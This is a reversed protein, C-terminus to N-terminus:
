NSISKTFFHRTKGEKPIPEKLPRAKLNYIIKGCPGEEELLDFYELIGKFRLASVFDKNLSPFLTHFSLDPMDLPWLEKAKLPLTSLFANAIVSAVFRRDLKMSAPKSALMYEFSEPRLQPLAAAYKVICPLTKKLFRNRDDPSFQNEIVDFLADFMAEDHPRADEPNLLPVNCLDHIQLLTVVVDQVSDLGSALVEMFSTVSPWTALECPLLISM